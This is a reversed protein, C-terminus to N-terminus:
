VFDLMYECASGTPTKTLVFIDAFDDDFVGDNKIAKMIVDHYATVDISVDLSMNIGYPHQVESM